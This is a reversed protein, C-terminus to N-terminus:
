AAVSGDSEEARKAVLGASQEDLVATIRRTGSSILAHLLVLPIATFLGLMTTVLAESIGGAMIRPDGTGYLVIAQFTRIMGTVTGLLGLLPAVVSVVRVVWLLSELRSTERLVAEDLKLELSESDLERNAAGVALVRGLPNNPLPEALNCQRRVRRDVIFVQLLKFIGLFAAVVGLAIITYGIPGGQDIRERLNPTQVLLSLIQGRTPDVAFPVLGQKGTEVNAATALYRSPPQRGLEVLRGIEPSWTLYRGGAVVNFSGVRVVSRQQEGGKATVVPAEFREVTGAEAAEELLILWLRRLAEISPLERSRSLQELFPERGTLEASIVSSRVHGLTDGAVQRVVGFAEGLSGLREKLTQELQALRMENEQFTRELEESRKEAAAVRARAQELLERQRDRSQRFERLRRADIAKEAEISKRVDQLLGELASTGRAPAGFAAPAGIACVAVLLAPLSRM